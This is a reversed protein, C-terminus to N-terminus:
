PRDGRGRKAPASASDVARGFDIANARGLRDLLALRLREWVGARQRDRPRRWCTVGSGCVTERPLMGWPVGSKPVLLIGALAARDGVQPRGGEPKPREPPPPPQVAEWPEDTVLRDSM